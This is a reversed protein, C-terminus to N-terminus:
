RWDLNAGEGLLQVNTGDANMVYLDFLHSVSPTATYDHYGIQTGDPSWAPDFGRVGLNVLGTGDANIVHIDGAEGGYTGFRDSTVFALRTGDPSWAPSIDYSQPLDVLTVRESGDLNILYLASNDLATLGSFALRTGDPSWAIRGGGVWVGDRTDLTVMRAGGGFASMVYLSTAEDSRNIFAVQTGDPSWAPAYPFNPTDLLTLGGGDPNVTYLNRGSSDAGVYLLRSGDPSWTPDNDYVWNGTMRTTSGDGRLVYIERNRDRDSSFAIIPAAQAWVVAPAGAALVLVVLLLWGLRKM